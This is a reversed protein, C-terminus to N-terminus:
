QVDKASTQRQKQSREDRLLGADSYDPLQDIFLETYETSAGDTQGTSVFSLYEKLPFDTVIDGNEVQDLIARADETPVLYGWKEAKHHHLPYGNWTLRLVKPVVRKATSVALQPRGDDLEDSLEQKLAWDNGTQFTV